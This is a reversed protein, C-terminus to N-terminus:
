KIRKQMKFSQVERMDDSSVEVIKYNVEDQLHIYFVPDQQKDWRIEYVIVILYDYYVPKIRKRIDKPLSAEDYRKISNLWKGSPSYTVSNLINDEYFKALYGKPSSIWVPDSIKPYYKRFDRVARIDVHTEKVKFDLADSVEPVEASIHEYTNAPPEVRTYVNGKFFLTDAQSYALHSTFVFFALLLSLNFQRPEM